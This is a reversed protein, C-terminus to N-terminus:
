SMLLIRNIIAMLKYNYRTCIKHFTIFTNNFAKELM